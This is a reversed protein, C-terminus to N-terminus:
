DASELREIRKPLSQSYDNREPLDCFNVVRNKISAPHNEHKEHVYVWWTSCNYSGTTVYGDSCEVLYLKNQQPEFTDVSLWCHTINVQTM